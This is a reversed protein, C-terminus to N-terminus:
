SEASAVIEGKTIPSGVVVTYIPLGHDKTGSDAFLRVTALLLRLRPGINVDYIIVVHQTGPPHRPPPLSLSSGVFQSIGPYKGLIVDRIALPRFGELGFQAVAQCYAIKAIARAFQETDVRFEPIIQIMEAHRLGLASGISTPVEHYLNGVLGPFEKTLPAGILAGPHDWVPMLLFNPHDRVTLPVREEAGARRVRTPLETPREKPHRTQVGIHIRLHGFVNRSLHTEFSQTIRQCETCSAEKLYSDAGLSFPV